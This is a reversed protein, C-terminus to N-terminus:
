RMVPDGSADVLIDELRPLSEWDGPVTCAIAGARNAAALRAEPDWAMLVGYLYSAVFADGAGVSDVVTVSLAPSDFHVGGILAHAGLAGLKIVVQRPGLAAIRECAEEPALEEGLLLAAEELGAFVIDSASAIRRYLDRPDGERWLANRHNVDFSVTRRAGKAISMAFLVAEEASASLSPTIGTVHLIASETVVGPDVHRASLQSGASQRRYYHVATRGTSRREKLMVATPAVPDVTAGLTVGEARLERMIRRGLSDDGVRGIWHANLGLRRIGIAVNSEAGGISIRAATATELGVPDETSLLGLTEGLTCVHIRNM